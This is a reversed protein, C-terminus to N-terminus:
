KQEVSNNYNFNIEPSSTSVSTQNYEKENDTKQTNIKQNDVMQKDKNRNIVQKLKLKTEINSDFSYEKKFNKINYYLNMKKINKINISRREVQDKPYKGIKSDNTVKYIIENNEISLIQIKYYVGDKEYYYERMKKILFGDKSILRELKNIDNNITKELNYFLDNDENIKNVYDLFNNIIM